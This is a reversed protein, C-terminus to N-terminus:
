KTGYRDMLIPMFVGGQVSRAIFHHYRGTETDYWDSFPVRTPSEQLYRYLPASLAKRKERDDTMAVCWYIWDSKTYPCRSDLPVGYPNNQKLYYDVEAERWATDFLDTAFLRDWVTNYKLSWSDANDFTLKTSESGTARDFWDATMERLKERYLAAKEAQGDQELLSAFAVLGMLAKASLNVNQSLHGAFDDTCLQEGPNAGHTLLYGAWQTLVDFHPKAFATDGDLKCVVATLILMNGCEEVPMQMSFDYVEAGKPYQYFYPYVGQPHPCHDRDRLSKSIGYVQGTAYPYRGVDHPAFDYDWVDCAAFRFIPRLMGKVYETQYLLYLPVSPYTVDVTGICGNSDNEKSLFVVEGYEDVLLKHAAISQRYAAACVLAYEEDVAAVAMDFLEKDRLACRAMLDDHETVAATIAELITKHTTTWYGKCLNGFYNISGGDDYAVVLFGEDTSWEAQLAVNGGHLHQLYQVEGQGTPVALYLHGWDITINDGSHSLPAQQQKGMYAYQMTPTEYVSGMMAQPYADDHTFTEDLLFKVTVDADRKKDVKVDIYVCPRSVLSLDELLLPSTFTVTLQIAENEFRYTTSLASVQLDTQPIVKGAGMRGLFHFDKGDITVVGIMAKEKGCWHTTQAEYLRDAPSWISFYPDNVLLPVSPLRVNQM